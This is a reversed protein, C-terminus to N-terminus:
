ILSKIFKLTVKLLRDWSLVSKIMWVAAQQQKKPPM